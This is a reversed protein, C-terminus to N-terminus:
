FKNGCDKCTRKRDRGKERVTNKSECKTCQSPDLSYVRNGITVPNQPMKILGIPPFGSDQYDRYVSHTPHQCAQYKANISTLVPYPASEIFSVENPKLTPANPADLKYRASGVLFLQYFSERFQGDMKIAAVTGSHNGILVIVKFKRGEVAALRLIEMVDLDDPEDKLLRGLEDCAVILPQRRTSDEGRLKLETDLERIAQYIDDLNNLEVFGENTFSSKDDAHPNLALRMAKDDGVMQSIAKIASTKGAGPHGTILFGRDSKKVQAECTPIKVLDDDDKTKAPKRAIMVQAKMLGQEGDFEFKIPTLTHTLQQLKESHENLESAPFVRSNRDTHFYLIAEHKRYDSYARDLIMGLGEFYLIIANGIRLDDRTAVLWKLPEKLKFILLDKEEIRALLDDVQMKWDDLTNISEDVKQSLNRIKADGLKAMENKAFVAKDIPIYGKEYQALLEYAKDLNLATEVNLLNRYKVKLMMIDQHIRQYKTVIAGFIEDPEYELKIEELLANHAEFSETLSDSFAQLKERVSTPYKDNLKAEISRNLNNYVEHVREALHELMDDRFQEVSESYQVDESALSNELEKTKLQLGKTALDLQVQLAALTARSDELEKEKSDAQIVRIDFQRKLEVLLTKTHNVEKNKDTLKGEFENLVKQFSGNTSGAYYRSISENTALMTIAAVAINIALPKAKEEAKFSSWIAASALLGSAISVFRSGNKFNIEYSM